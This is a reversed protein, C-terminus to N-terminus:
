CFDGALLVSEPRHLASVDQSLDGKVVLLDADFGPALRGTRDLGCATAAASTATALAETVPIGATALEIVAFPLTGHAKPPQIGSDVGSVIRVGARHLRAVFAGRDQLLKQTTTGFRELMARFAPPPEGMRSPDLGLTPCVAVGSDALAVILADDADGFGQETVCSCHEIGDVGSALAQRVAPTGHAHATVPVGATHAVDVLLRLEEDTFQTRLVDTGPTNIGGSAMVKVGDAGRGVRERVAARLGDAGSVEGGLYHCHGAPSTVPPGFAVIRPEISAVSRQRDRREVVAYGRDGLDRVTTVGAALQRRLGETVVADLEEESYGAVRDLANPGSDTVLHVHMDILGPLLTGDYMTVDCGDPLEIGFAEVGRIRGEDVIVTAGGPLFRSGDFACRARIAYM